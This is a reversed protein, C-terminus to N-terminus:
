GAARGTMISKITCNVEETTVEKFPLFLYMKLDESNEATFKMGYLGTVMDTNLEVAKNNGIKLEKVTEYM